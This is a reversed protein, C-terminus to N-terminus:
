NFLTHFINFFSKTQPKSSEFVNKHREYFDEAVSATYKEILSNIVMVNHEKDNYDMMYYNCMNIDDQNNNEDEDCLGKFNSRLFSNITENESDYIGNIDIYKNNCLIITHLFLNHEKSIISKIKCNKTSNYLKLIKCLELSFIACLGCSFTYRTHIDTSNNWLNIDYDFKRLFIIYDDKKFPFNHDTLIGITNNCLSEDDINQDKHIVIGNMYNDIKEYSILKLFDNCSIIKSDYLCLGSNQYYIFDVNNLTLKIRQKNIIEKLSKM